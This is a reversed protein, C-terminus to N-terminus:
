EFRTSDFFSIEFLKLLIYTGPGEDDFKKVFEQIVNYFNSIQEHAVTQFREKTTELTANRNIATAYLEKWLMEIQHSLEEDEALYTVDHQKLIDYTQQYTLFKVEAEVNTRIITTIAQMVNKFTELGRIHQNVTFTLEDIDMKFQKMSEETNKALMRGLMDKWTLAHKCIDNMLPRQNIRICGIDAHDDRKTLDNVINIYSIMKEDYKELLPQTEVFTVCTREKDYSWLNKYRRWFDRQKHVALIAVQAVQQLKLMSECVDPVQVIDDYFSFVFYDDTGEIRQPASTICTENMWRPFLKLKELCDRVNRLIINYIEMTSPRLVIEPEMLTMDVQFVAKDQKLKDAYREFNMEIMKIMSQYIKNEWYNYYYQMFISCGTNTGLVLNELKKLIPGFTEYTKAMQCVRETRYQEIENAFEKCPLIVSEDHHFLNYSTIQEIRKSLDLEMHEM